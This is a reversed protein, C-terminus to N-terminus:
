KQDKKDVVKSFNEKEMNENKEEERRSITKVEKKPEERLMITHPNGCAECVYMFGGELFYMFFKTGSCKACPQQRM